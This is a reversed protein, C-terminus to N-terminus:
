SSVALRASSSACSQGMAPNPNQGVTLWIRLGRAPEGCDWAESARSRQARVIATFNIDNIVEAKQTM